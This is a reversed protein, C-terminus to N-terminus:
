ENTINGVHVGFREQGFTESQVFLGEHLQNDPPQTTRYLTAGMVQFVAEGIHNLANADNSVVVFGALTVMTM